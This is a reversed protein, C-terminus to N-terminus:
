TGVLLLHEKSRPQIRCQFPKLHMTAAGTTWEMTPEVEVGHQDVPKTINFVALINSVNLFISMEALHAGPCARRGFGFVFRLLDPQADDGLHRSPNFTFPEPYIEEDHTIAWINAIVKTGKAIYYNDYVDDEMALHPIGLPAVPGWRMVERILARIYPLSDYDDLTPLRSPAVLDIEAQAKAQVSPNTAMLFFFTRLTSVTTDGGGIFLAASCWKINQETEEDVPLGDESLLHKSTFSEVHDDNAIQTKAWDFPVCEINSTVRGVEKARRKFGAGPFWDPIFRLIPFFEVWYKGPISISGMLQSTKALLHVLPDDNSAIQYGYAVKLIVAVANRRIHTAFDEPTTALNQLLILTEQTQIPRYSKSARTNLGTQLLRRMIKFRPDMFSTLFITRKRGAIEGAMWNTPRDSYFASRAELIDLAVKASNLVINKSNLTKFYVIPGYTKSWSTFTLWPELPSLQHLNGTIFRQKPGPPNQLGKRM